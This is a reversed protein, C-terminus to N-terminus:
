FCGASAAGTKRQEHGLSSIQDHKFLHETLDNRDNVDTVTKYFLTACVRGNEHQMQLTMFKLCLEEHGM